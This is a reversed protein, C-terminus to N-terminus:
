LVHNKLRVSSPINVIREELWYSNTLIETQCSKYMDLKNMLQWIPRTMIGAKNTIDLFNDRETKDALLVANLWYNAKSGREEEIFSISQSEFFSKYRMALERKNDLFLQIKELQACGIAANLNPLRYNYGVMDHIYEHPSAMKATTTLHKAKKALSEDDTVIMGGGGTTITKNGNFSFAGVEGFTGTHRGQAYSGLSEAADEVLPINYRECIAKIQTIGAPHGFTHMPLVATIKKGTQKNYQGGVRRETKTSLFHLLADPCLGMNRKDVDIFVPVANCYSIANCTAVFSLAQTIVETNQEVGVLRLAVHLAATGNVTAIAFKAGTYEAFKDEFQDVFKGVSSVFTSDICELLYTKENGIFVPAHLPIFQDSQFTNQIFTIIDQYM